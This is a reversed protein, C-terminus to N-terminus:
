TGSRSLAKVFLIAYLGLKAFGDDLEVNPSMLNQQQTPLPHRIVPQKERRPSFRYPKCNRAGLLRM